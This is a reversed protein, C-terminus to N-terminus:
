AAARVRPKLTNWFSCGKENLIMRLFHQGNRGCQGYWEWANLYDKPCDDMQYETQAWDWAAQLLGDSYNNNVFVYKAQPMDQTNSYEYSDTMGDFHGYQFQKAFEEIENAVAPLQDVLDIRISSGMSYNHSKVTCEIRNTRLHKRIIAAGRAAETKM